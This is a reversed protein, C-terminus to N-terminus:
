AKVWPVDHGLRSKVNEVAIRIHKSSIQVGIDSDWSWASCAVWARVCGHARRDKAVPIAVLNAGDIRDRAPRHAQFDQCRSTKRPTEPCCGQLSIWSGRTWELSPALHYNRNM